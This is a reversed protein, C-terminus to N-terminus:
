FIPYYAGQRRRGPLSPFDMTKIKLCFELSIICMSISNTMLIHFDVLRSIILLFARPWCAAALLVRAM